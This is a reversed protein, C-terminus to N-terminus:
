NGSGRQPNNVLETPGVHLNIRADITLLKGWVLGVGYFHYFIGDILIFICVVAAVIHRRIFSLLQAKRM